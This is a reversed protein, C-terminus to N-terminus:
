GSGVATQAMGAMGATQGIACKSQFIASFDGKELWGMAPGANLGNRLNALM